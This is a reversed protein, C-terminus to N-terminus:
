GKRRRAARKRCATSCYRADARRWLPVPDGCGWCAWGGWRLNRLIAKARALRHNRHGTAWVGSKPWVAALVHWRGDETQHCDIGDPDPGTM